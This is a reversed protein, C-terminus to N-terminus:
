ELCFIFLGNKLLHNARTISRKYVLPIIHVQVDYGPSINVLLKKPVICLNWIYNLSFSSTAEFVQGMLNSIKPNAGSDLLQQVVDAHNGRAAHHLPQLDCIYVM